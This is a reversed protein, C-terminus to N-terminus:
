LNLRLSITATRGTGFYVGASNADFTKVGDLFSDNNQADTIFKSNLLNIVSGRLQFGINKIKWSFGAHIDVMFYNPIKWSQKPNGNEDFSDPSKEKDYDLPNFEAYHKGFYTFVGTAYLGPIIEWRLSEQNQFQAADGVYLGKADFPVTGFLQGNGDYIRATDASTWKWDGLSLLSELVLNNSIKYAFEFEIGKHLANMDNINVNHIVGDINILNAKDSPKNLWVTYYSNVNLTFSEKVWSYGIEAAKVQENKIDLFLKNRQDFVNSFRQSKSIFGLNAFVNMTENLNYNVGGKMTWGPIYKWETENTRLGPSNHDYIKNNYVVGNVYSITLTTDGIDLLKPLFYDIRKYGSISTTVNVFATLNGKSIKAQGFIGGWNVIADYNYGIIDGVYKKISDNKENQNFPDLMYDGGFLDAVERYHSGKYTRLDIGGSITILDSHTYDFTSLLGAWFHNNMANRLYDASQKRPNFYPPKINLNGNYTVQLNQQGTEAEYNPTTSFSNGGGNGLSLYLINSVYLKKNVTWFDRLSFMPKHYFNNSTSQAQKQPYITDTDTIYAKSLWGWNPNYQLGMNIPVGSNILTKIAEQSVGNKSAYATDFTAIFKKHSRQGHEQPAGMATMSIMHNGIAKDVRLFYFYGKTYTQDVWGNGHKYSGAFTVGWGNSMRGTTMGLSTRIFGNEGVEQKINIGKKAEIGKTAINITGGVSPIALKSAGLGRQVQTYRMIADLGFWNSWYVWGNEMDNVPIGDLMVAVNRQNFGRINIRADGDGGGSKTAYVGPTSNLILPIDQTALQEEMKVPTINAFAIPTERSKALDGVVEVESLTITSLSFNIVLPDSGVTIKKSQKEFGVYSVEITYEGPALKLEFAGDIDTITGQGAGYVINVGILPEGTGEESVIGKISTTQAYTAFALMFMVLFFITNKTIM